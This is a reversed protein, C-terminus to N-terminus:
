PKAYGDDWLQAEIYHHKEEMMRMFDEMAGGHERIMRMLAEKTMVTLTGNRRFGAMSDSLTFSVCESPINKLPIKTVIGRDFWANLYESGQLVFSLPHETKPRGGQAVFSRRLLADVELRFPYYNEFDAFCGISAAGQNREAMAYALWFAEERPLRMINLLPVCDPHCYNAIRLDDLAEM